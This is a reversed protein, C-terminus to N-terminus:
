SIIIVMGQDIVTEMGTELDGITMDNAFTLFLYKNYIEFKRYQVETSQATSTCHKGFQEGWNQAGVKPSKSM